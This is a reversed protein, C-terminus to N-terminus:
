HIQEILSVGCEECYKQDISKIQAGCNKCHTLKKLLKKETRKM